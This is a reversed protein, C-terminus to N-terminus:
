EDGNFIVPGPGDELYQFFEEGHGLKTGFEYWINQDHIKIYLHM